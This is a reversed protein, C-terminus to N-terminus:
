KAVAGVVFKISGTQRCGWECGATVEANELSDVRKQLCEVPVINFVLVVRGLLGEEKYMGCFGVYGVMAKSSLSIRCEIGVNEVGRSM